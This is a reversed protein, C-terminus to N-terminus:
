AAESRLRFVGPPAQRIAHMVRQNTAAAVRDLQAVLSLLEDLAACAAYGNTDQAALSECESVSKEIQVCLQRVRKFSAAVLTNGGLSPYEHTYAFWSRILPLLRTRTGALSQAANM